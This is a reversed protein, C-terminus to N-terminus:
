TRPIWVASLEAALDPPLSRSAAAGRAFHRALSPSELERLGARQASQRLAVGSAGRASGRVTVSRPPPGGALVVVLNGPGTLVLAAGEFPIAPTRNWSRAIRQRRARVAPDGDVARQEERYEDTTLRLQSELRQWQLFYDLLGLVLVVVALSTALGKLLSGSARALAHIEMGSLREFAPVDGQLAWATVGILAAAKALSWAGRAARSGWGAAPSWFRAPNPALLGPSWLGQVQAQHALVSAILVGSLVFGLPVLVAFAVQRSRSVIEDVTSVLSPDGLLPERVASVCGALIREGWFGLLVVAALLIAAGTLEPSRAVLGQERAQQRRRKTPTQTRDESM